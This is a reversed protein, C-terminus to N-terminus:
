QSLVTCMDQGAPRVAPRQVGWVPVPIRLGGTANCSALPGLQLTICWCGVGVLSAAISVMTAAAFLLRRWGRFSVWYPRFKTKIPVYNELTAALMTQARLADVYMLYEYCTWTDLASAVMRALYPVQCLESCNMGIARVHLAYLSAFMVVNPDESNAALDELAMVASYSLGDAPMRDDDLELLGASAAQDDVDCSSCTAMLQEYKHEFEAASM